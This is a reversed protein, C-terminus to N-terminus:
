AVADMPCTDSSPASLFAKLATVESSPRSLSDVLRWLCRRKRSGCELVSSRRISVKKFHKDMEIPEFASGTKRGPGGFDRDVHREHNQPLLACVLLKRDVSSGGM